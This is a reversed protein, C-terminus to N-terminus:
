RRLWAVIAATAGERGTEAPFGYHDGAIEVRTLDRTGLSRAVLENDSPFICNDGDYSVLLAPLTM